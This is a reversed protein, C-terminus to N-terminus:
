IFNGVILFVRSERNWFPRTTATDNVGGIRTQRKDLAAQGCKQLVAEVLDLSLLQALDRLFFGLDDPTKWPEEGGRLVRAGFAYGDIWLAPLSPAAM